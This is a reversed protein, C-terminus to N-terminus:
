VLDWKYIRPYENKLKEQRSYVTPVQVRSKKNGYDRELKQPPPRYVEKTQKPAEPIKIKEQKLKCTCGWATCDVKHAQELNATSRRERKHKKKKEKRKSKM